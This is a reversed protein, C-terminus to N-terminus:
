WPWPLISIFEQVLEGLILLLSLGAIVSLAWVISSILFGYSNVFAFSLSAMYWAVCSLLNVPDLEFDGLPVGVYSTTGVHLATCFVVTVLLIVFSFIFMGEKTVHMGM